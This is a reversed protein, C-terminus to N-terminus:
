REGQARSEGRDTLRIKQAIANVAAIISGADLRALRGNKVVMDGRVMVHRVDAGRAAYVIHSCPHYLPCLHPKRTDVIVLDAEKATEISGIRDDLGMARAGEITAMRIIAEANMVTPDNLSAKHLRAAAGMAQFMDLNNNSAAGDTGLGVVLGAKLMEPMAAIGSALKMNSEPNYSIKVQRRALLEIDEPGAWVAHVALTDADLIGAEDLYAVPSLGPPLGALHAENRTEAVHVQFLVNERKAAQKAAILTERSCTYPSHCFISPYILPSRNKWKGVFEAAHAVNDKPDAVGPAPFDIVGQGLVARMGAEDVAEAVSDEFFYGDCCTTTGSLLMEACSLLTGWKVTEPTIHQQEAPFIHNNLWQDLPLDDALGRFLSMPLHTHTNVLGPMVLGGEADLIEDGSASTGGPVGQLPGAYEIRGNLIGVAGNEVIEFDANVTIIIGNTILTDFHM